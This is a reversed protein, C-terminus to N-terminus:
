AAVKIKRLKPQDERKLQAIEESFKTSAKALVTHYADLADHLEALDQSTRDSDFLVETKDEVNSRSMIKNALVQPLPRFTKQSSHTTM